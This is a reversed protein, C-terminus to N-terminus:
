FVRDFNVELRAEQMERALAMRWGGPDFPTYLVGSVDSPLEVGEEYLVAVRARGLKGIFFGLEFVVNQRARRHWEGSGRLRGEDDGTLLVVAFAAPTAYHEFKEIVTRGRNPQEHLIVCKL